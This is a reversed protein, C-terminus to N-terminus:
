PLGREMRVFWRSPDHTGRVPEGARAFGSRAYAREARANAANVWLSVRTAGRERAWAVLAHILAPAAGSGRAEPAVWMSVLEVEDAAEERPLASVLGVLAGDREAVWTPREASASREQWTADTFALERELTSGFAAPDAALARLRLERLARWEDARLRRVHVRM